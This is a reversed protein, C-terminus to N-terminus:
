VAITASSAAGDQVFGPLRRLAAVTLDLTETLVSMRQRMAELSPLELEIERAVAALRSAGFTGACGKLVHAERRAQGIDNGALAAAIAAISTTAAPALDSLMALLEDSGIADGIIAIQVADFM